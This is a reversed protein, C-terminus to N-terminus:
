VTAGKSRNCTECLLQINRETNSGGAIIPIIHDFELRERSGCKVCQGRDRQWVFLRVSEPIPERGVTEVRTLNELAEVDRRVKEYSRDHRLVYHKVLLVETERDHVGEPETSEVALVKDRFAWWLALLAQPERSQRELFESTAQRYKPDAHLAQKYAYCARQWEARNAANGYEEKAIDPFAGLGPWEYANPLAELWYTTPHRQQKGPQDKLRDLRPMGGTYKQVFGIHEMPVYLRQDRAYELLLYDREKGDPSIRRMGEYRAVGHDAHVVFDGVTLKSPDTLLSGRSREAEHYLVSAPINPRQNLSISYQLGDEESFHLKGLIRVKVRSV